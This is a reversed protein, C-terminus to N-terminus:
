YPASSAQDLLEGYSDITFVDFNGRAEPIAYEFYLYLCRQRQVHVRVRDFRSPSVNGTARAQAVVAQLQAEGLLRDPCKMAAHEVDVLVGNQNLRFIYNYDPAAPLGTETYVYSCGQRRMAWSFRPFQPPLDDRAARSRDVIDKVQQESLPPAECAAQAQGAAVLVSGLIVVFRGSMLM